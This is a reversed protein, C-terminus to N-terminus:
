FFIGWRRTRRQEVVSALAVKELLQWEKSTQRDM